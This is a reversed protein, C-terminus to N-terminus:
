ITQNFAVLEIMGATLNPYVTEIRNFFAELLETRSAYEYFGSNQDYFRNSVLDLVLSHGYRDGDRPILNIM